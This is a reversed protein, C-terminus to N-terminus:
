EKKSTIIKISTEKDDAIVNTAPIMTTMAMFLAISLAMKQYIKKKRM